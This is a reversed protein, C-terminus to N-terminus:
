KRIRIADEVADFQIGLAEILGDCDSDALEAFIVYAWHSGNGGGFERDRDVPIGGLVLDAQLL